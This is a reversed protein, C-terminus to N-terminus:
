KVIRYPLAVRYFTNPFPEYKDLVDDVFGSNILDEIAVNIMQKFQGEDPRFMYANGLVRLPTESAINEMVGPNNKM